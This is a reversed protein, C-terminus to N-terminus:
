KKSLFAKREVELRKALEENVELMYRVVPRGIAVFTELEREVDAPSARAPAGGQLSKLLESRGPLKKVAAQFASRQLFNHHNYLTKKYSADISASTEMGKQLNAFMEVFFELTWGIWLNGMWASDDAYGKYKTSAHTPLESLLWQRYDAETTPAKSQRLKKINALVYSGMDGGLTNLVAAYCEIGRLLAERDLKAVGGASGLSAAKQLLEVSAALVGRPAASAKATSPEAVESSPVASPQSGRSVKRSPAAVAAPQEPASKQSKSTKRSGLSDSSSTKQQRQLLTPMAYDADYDATVDIEEAEEFKKVCCKPLKLSMSCFLAM